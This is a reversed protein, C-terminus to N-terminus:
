RDVEDIIFRRKCCQVENISYFKPMFFTFCKCFFIESNVCFFINRQLLKIHVLDIHVLDIHVLDIHVLDNILKYTQSLSFSKTRSM